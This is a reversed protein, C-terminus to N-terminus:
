LPKDVLRVNLSISNLLILKLYEAADSSTMKFWVARLRVGPPTDRLITM